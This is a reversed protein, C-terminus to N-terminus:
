KLEYYFRFRGGPAADGNTYTDMIDGASQANDIWKFGLTKSGSELDLVEKSLALHRQNGETREVVRGVTEWSWGGQCREIKGGRVLFEFGEWNQQGPIDLDILLRMGNSDQPESITERTQMYFYVNDADETVKAVHFDNRGTHITYHYRGCGDFDRPDTDHVHDRYTASVDDWQAMSGKIDITKNDTSTPAPQMGKFRRINASMQMYYNDGYGGKMMEVDRSNEVDFQDCFVPSGSEDDNLQMAIWENWGTVFTVEPDLKLAYEWQEQFNLGDLFADERTDVKGDSFSRGRAKGSSMMEVRGSDQHLNQGVSVNVQEPQSPDKDYSYVQPYTSEWHWANQTNDLKFPWHAKRLTFFELVEDSAKEPDCILLPKGQWRFWLEPSRAQQYFTEYIREATQKARSNVMFTIQPVHEGALRQEEFVEMMKLVVNQYILGNTADLVLFDVGADSLLAAHRRLVWPDDSRYYGFLPEGWFHFSKKRGWPPTASTTMADPHQKLIMSIDHVPINQMWAFYFIGVYRDSRFPRVEQPLPMSRGLADNGILLPPAASQAAAHNGVLAAFVLTGWLMAAALCTSQFHDRQRQSNSPIFVLRFLIRLLIPKM